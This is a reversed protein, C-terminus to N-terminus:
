GLTEVIRTLAVETEALPAVLAVRIFPLGPNDGHGDVATLYEGPIVRVGAERWLKLAVAESSGHASIDLWLFFGGEPTTAGYRGALIKEAAAYKENYLRRNEIVHAEDNYAAAGVAQVPLPVQPGAMNRFRTWAALFAPDGAAFGCRLGPLNSRKSLSNFVVLNSLDRDGAVAELAGAPPTQRYIESYCEDAFLMFGHRRALEVLRQWLELSAVSGQPAAPSAVYAAITRDLLAPDLADPDPLFGTKPSVDFYVAEAGIAHAAARYAHYFPNPLLIVPKGSTKRSDGAALDRATVAALFLGERSGSLSVIGDKPDVLGDLGYRRELWGAVAARYADTGNIAPYRGFDAIHDALVPGVFAPVAHRPEGITLNLGPEIGPAIGELLDALRRFPSQGGLDPGGTGSHPSQQHQALSM